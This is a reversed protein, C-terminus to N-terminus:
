SKGFFNITTVGRQAAHGHYKLEDARYFDKVKFKGSDVGSKPFHVYKGPEQGQAWIVHMLGDEISHDSQERSILRKRFIITTVGDKEFGMAATLDSIGGWFSDVKPTSRDRTYYDDIRSSTNKATGIVIDTCDMPNFDHRPTYPNLTEKVVVFIM